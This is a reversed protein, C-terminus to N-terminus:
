PNPTVPASAPSLAGPGADNVFRVKFTYAVGSAYAGTVPVPSTLDNSAYTLPISPTSEVVISHIPTGGDDPLAFVLSVVTPSTIAGVPAIPAAPPSALDALAGEAETLSRAFHQAFEEATGSFAAVAKEDLALRQAVAAATM